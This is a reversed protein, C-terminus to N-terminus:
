TGPLITLRTTLYAGGVTMRLSTAAEGIRLLWATSPDRDEGCLGPVNRVNKSDTWLHSDRADDSLLRSYPDKSEADAESRSSSAGSLIVAM